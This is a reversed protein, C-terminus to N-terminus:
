LATETFTCARSGSGQQVGELTKLPSLALDESPEGAREHSSGMSPRTM